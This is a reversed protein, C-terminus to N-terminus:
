NPIVLFWSSDLQNGTVDGQKVMALCMMLILIKM